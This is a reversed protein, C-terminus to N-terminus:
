KRKWNMELSKNSKQIRMGNSKKNSIQGLLNYTDIDNKRLLKFPRNVNSKIASTAHCETEPWWSPPLAIGERKVFYFVKTQHNIYDPWDEWWLETYVLTDKNIKFTASIKVEPYESVGIDFSTDNLLKYPNVWLMYCNREKSDEYDLDYEYISDETYKYFASQSQEMIVTDVLLTDTEDSIKFFIEHRKSLEWTNQFQSCATKVMLMLFISMVVLVYKIKMFKGKNM